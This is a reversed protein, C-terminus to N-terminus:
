RYRERAATCIRGDFNSACADRVTGCLSESMDGVAGDLWRTVGEGVNKAVGPTSREVGGKLKANAETVEKVCAAHIARLEAERSFLQQWAYFAVGALAAGLAVLGASRIM